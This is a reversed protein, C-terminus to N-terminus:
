LIQWPRLFKPAISICQLLQIWTPLYTHLFIPFAPVTYRHLFSNKTIKKRQFNHIVNSLNWQKSSWFFTILCFSIKCIQLLKFLFNGNDNLIQFGQIFTYISCLNEHWWWSFFTEDFWSFIVHECLTKLCPWTIQCSKWFFNDCMVKCLPKWCSRITQRFKWPFIKSKSKFDM